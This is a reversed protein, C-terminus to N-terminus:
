HTYQGKGGLSRVWLLLGDSHSAEFQPGRPAAEAM